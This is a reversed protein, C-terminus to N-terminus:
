CLVSSCDILMELRGLGRCCVQVLPNEVKPWQRTKKGVSICWSAKARKRSNPVFNWFFTGKKQIHGFKRIIVTHFLHSFPWM